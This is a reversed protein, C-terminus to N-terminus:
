YSHAGHAGVMVEFALMAAWEEEDLWKLENRAVQLRLRSFHSPYWTVQGSLRSRAETWDPDLPDDAQGGVWEWRFGQAWEPSWNM